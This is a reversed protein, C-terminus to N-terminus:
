GRMGWKRASKAVAPMFKRDLMRQWGSRDQVELTQFTIHMPGGSPAAAAPARASRPAGAFALLKDVFWPPLVVEGPTLMAHVSDVGARSGSTNPVKGGEAFALTGALTAYFAATEAAAAVALGPGVVPIGINAAYAAGAAVAAYAKIESLATAKTTVEEMLKGAVWEGLKGVLGDILAEGLNLAADGVVQGTTKVEDRLRRQRERENEVLRKQREEISLSTDNIIEKAREASDAAIEDATRASEIVGRIVGKINSYVSHYATNFMDVYDNAADKAIEKQKEAEKKKIETVREENEEIRMGAEEALQRKLDAAAQAAEVAEFEAQKESAGQQFARAIAEEAAKDLRKAEEEADKAAKIEEERYFKRGEEVPKTMAIRLKNALREAIVVSKGYRAEVAEPDMPDDLPEAYTEKRLNAIQRAVAHGLDTTAKIMGAYADLMNAAGGVIERFFDNVAARGEKSRFYKSVEDIMEKAATAASSLVGSQDAAESFANGANEVSKAVDQYAKTEDLLDRAAHVLLRTGHTLVKNLIQARNVDKAYRLMAKSLKNSEKEAKATEGSLGALARKSSPDLKGYIRIGAALETM